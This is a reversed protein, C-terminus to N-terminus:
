KPAQVRISVRAGRLVVKELTVNGGPASAFTYTAELGPDMGLGYRIYSVIPNVSWAQEDGANQDLYSVYEPLVKNRGQEENYTWCRTLPVKWGGDGLKLRAGANIWDLFAWDTGNQYHYRTTGNYLPWANLVGWDKELRELAELQQARRDPTLVDYLLALASEGTVRNECVGRDCSEYLYGGTKNWFIANIQDRVLLAQRYFSRAHSPQRNLTSLDALDRLAQYYLVENSVVEGSRPISDLWDQLSHEPKEPLLNGDTDKTSLYSVIDEMAAFVTRGNVQEKLVSADGTWRIYDDVLLIFYPGSDVHDAWLSMRLGKPDVPVASPVSGDTGVGSALLLIQDRVVYPEIMLIMGSSWYTDRYYVRPPDMYKPGAAIYRTGDGTVGISALAVDVSDEFMGDLIPDDTHMVPRHLTTDVSVIPSKNYAAASAAAVVLTDTARIVQAWQNGVRVGPKGNSNLFNKGSILFVSQCPAKNGQPCVLSKEFQAVKPQLFLVNEAQVAFPFLLFIGTGISWLFRM